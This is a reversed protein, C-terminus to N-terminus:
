ESDYTEYHIKMNTICRRKRRNNRNFNSCCKLGRSQAKKNCSACIHITKVYYGFRGLTTIDLEFKEKNGNKWYYKEVVSKFTKLQVVSNEEHSIWTEFENPPLSLYEYLMNSRNTMEEYGRKFYDVNFDEFTKNEYKKIIEIYSKITKILILHSETDICRKEITTDRTNLFRDMYFVCLRRPIAGSSDKYDPLYNALFLMPINWNFNNISGKNKIPIDMHSGEIMRQFDGKDLKQTFNKNM